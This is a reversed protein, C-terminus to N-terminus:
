GAKREAQEVPTIPEVVKVKVIKVGKSKLAKVHRAHAAQLQQLRHMARKTTGPFMQEIQRQERILNALHDVAGVRAWRMLERDESTLAQDQDKDTM